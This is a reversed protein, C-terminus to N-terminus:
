LISNLPLRMEQATQRDLEGPTDAPYKKNITVTHYQSLAICFLQQVLDVLSICTVSFASQQAM